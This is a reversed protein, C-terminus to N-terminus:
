IDFRGQPPRQPGSTAAALRKIQPWAVVLGNYALAEQNWKKRECIQYLRYSLDRAVEANAGLQRALEAASAEGQELRLVLYQAMEWVTLRKDTAPDWGEDLENRSLLRVKGGRADVIGATRLGEISTNKAQSLLIAAGAEGSGTGFQEFWELAWRTYPDLDGEQETMVEDMTGNILALAMRVSMPSGDAELVRSFQTFVGMGPGIAAQAFDVPAVNGHRLHRLAAPLEQRLLRLFERRTGAPADAPRPRCVLVIASALANTGRAVSRAKKTTRMPWTGTIEFGAAVLGSLMTEWGTSAVGTLDEESQAYAYYVTLPYDPSMRDRMHSFAQAFGSEFHQKAATADGDFRYPSAILEQRKPAMLTSLLTPHVGILCRRLWLYFFDSLDAYGINDYYPPDTSILLDDYQPLAAASDLQEVTGPPGCPVHTLAGAVWGAAVSVDLEGALTNAEVFDWAMPIAQRQFLNRVNQNQANWTAFANHYDTLRGVALGLYSAVARAYSAAEAEDPVRKGDDSCELADRLVRDRTEPVLDSLTVLAVLQRPTFLHRYNPLGYAPPSFWRPNAPLPQDLFGVDPEAVDPHVVGEPDLYVRGRHGEAVVAMLQVGVGYAKSQSRLQGDSISDTGCFLCRSHGRKKTGEPPKATDMRVRFRVTGTSVDVVPEVWAEHGKKASLEFSRALPMDAGCAPNPCRVKRAWVWAVVRAQGGGQSPPLDVEPFLHGLRNVAQERMWQGYYRIDAMLGEPGSWGSLTRSVRSEPNVPPCNAYQAPFEILSKGMLVAVPNLDSAHVELGLRQGELPISARGAFSDVLRPLGGGTSRAIEARAEDLVRFDSTNSWQCLERMVGFLREREADQEAETPFRDPRSSPDDVLSGFIVARTAVLPTRAWWPHIARPHNRLFPNETEPRCAENIDDLPLAVEILKKRYETM